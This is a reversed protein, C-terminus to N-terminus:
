EFDIWFFSDWDKEESVVEFTFNDSDQVFLPYKGVYATYTYNGIPFNCPIQHELFKLVRQGPQLIVDEKKFVKIALPQVYSWTDFTGTEEGTNEIIVGYNIIQNPTVITQNPVLTIDIFTTNLFNPYYDVGNGPGPIEYYNPYGPNTEFDHWFNGATSLNWYNGSNAEYANVGNEIFQNNWFTNGSGAYVKIGYPSYSFSNNSFLNYYSEGFLNIGQATNHTIINNSLYNYSSSHIYVGHESNNSVQNGILTNNNSDSDLVIGGFRNNNGKNEFVLNKSSGFDIVIGWENNMASSNILTNKQGGLFDIGHWFGQLNCNKVTVGEQYSVYVGSDRPSPNYGDILHGNCDLTLNDEGIILGHGSCDILDKTLTTDEYIIDGCNLAKVIGSLSLILM